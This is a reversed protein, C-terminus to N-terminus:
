LLNESIRMFMAYHSFTTFIPVKPTFLADCSGKQGLVTSYGVPVLKKFLIFIFLFYANCYLNWQM